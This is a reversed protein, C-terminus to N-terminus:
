KVIFSESELLPLDWLACYKLYDDKAIQVIVPHHDKKLWTLIKLLNEKSMATCGATPHQPCEWIHMFIASGLGVITPHENFGITAGYEYVPYTWLLESSNWNKPILKTDVIKNYYKSEPDDVAEMSSSFHIYPLDFNTEKNIPNLGFIENIPYIGAPSRRDSERRIPGEKQPCQGHLGHGWALGNSGLSVDIPSGQQKWEKDKEFIWMKAVSSNWNDALVLLLQKHESQISACVLGPFFLSILFVLKRM